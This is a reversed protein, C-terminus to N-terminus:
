EHAVWNWRTELGDIFAAQDLPGEGDLNFMRLGVGDLNRPGVDGCPLHFVEESNGHLRGHEFAVVPNAKNLTNWNVQTGAVGTLRIHTRVVTIVHLDSTWGGDLGTPQHGTKGAQHRSFNPCDPALRYSHARIHDVEPWTGAWPM